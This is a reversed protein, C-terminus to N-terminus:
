VRERIEQFLGLNTHYKYEQPRNEYEILRVEGFRRSVEELTNINLEDALESYITKADLDDFWFDNGVGHSNLQINDISIGSLEGFSAPKVNENKWRWKAPSYDDAIWLYYAEDKPSNRFRQQRQVEGCWQPYNKWWVNAPKNGTFLQHTLAKHELEVLNSWTNDKLNCEEPVTIRPIANIIEYQAQPLIELLDHSKRNQLGKIEFGPNEFCRETGILAKYNKNLLLINPELPVLPRHRLVRGALQIISRMSSPEVIAWDYDHDRGVEAVPSAIVVFIHNQHRSNNLKIDIEPHHWIAEPKHRKLIRDLKNELHSRIALPYRSHYVCYHICTDHLPVDTKLLEISVAVLPNINAMRVLGISVNKDDHSQHHNKHLKIINDQITQALCSSIPRSNLQVLIIDGKQKTTVSANLNKIRKKVFSEHASKFQTFDSYEGPKSEFEDFWACSIEGKWDAINAKAYHEWGDKYAQFLAYSLAPPMTATSLLVRSGLLGAWHVIRCLAPLDELGFDDPEDLVLDSTLLRLMPGIQKGGKTGETAPILHDITCVLVPANILKDLHKEQATWESLSHKALSGKYDLTLDPDFLENQSESGIKEYEDTIKQNQQNEFLQKVATGGVVIALEEENLRIKNRYEKGTQLTLTRLGIAVSFRKRGTGCGIAYMIKANALTKGKGTSAMNIGFFGKAITSKALKESCKRADDQWGFAQKHKKEVNSELVDNNDLSDLTTNLKPLSRAIRQAHYAVGILHEDLQQKFSKIKDTNAWVIYNPSRWEETVKEQASYYHDALMLCLRSVHATFLHHNLWDTEQYQQLSLKANAESAILCAKSRWHMSKYPLGKEFNWNEVLRDQQDADKCNHSNWIADFNNDMWDSIDDFSPQSNEKWKPYIPLKHHTLILWAVLQAFPSLDKMPHNNNVSGDVGDKFCESVQDREVQSLAELWKKDAQNGAFGQFLRLSLWEHRYPEFMETNQKADIKKQFLVTAKGFDHFLGAIAAAYQIVSIMNWQYNDSYQSIENETYNVPVVGQEDFKSKNGVVWLFQSRSRSRIWHCSVATSKSATQRLMKKVTNLGDETIVTQWTNDGIRNAFADLVRRTKKLANKECQSIFTVMM